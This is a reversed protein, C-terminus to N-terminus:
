YISVWIVRQGSLIVGWGDNGVEFIFLDDAIYFTACAYRSTTEYRILTNRRANETVIRGDEGEIAAVGLDTFSDIKDFDNRNITFSIGDFTFMRNHGFQFDNVILLGNTTVYARDTENENGVLSYSVYRAATYTGDDYLTISYVDGEENERTASESINRESLVRTTRESLSHALEIRSEYEPFVACLEEKTITYTNISDNTSADATVSFILSFMLTIIFIYNGKKM